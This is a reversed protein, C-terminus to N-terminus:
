ASQSVKFEPCIQDPGGWWPERKGWRTRSPNLQKCLRMRGMKRKNTAPVAIATPRTVGIWAVTPSKM